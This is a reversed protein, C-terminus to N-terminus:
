SAKQEVLTNMKAVPLKKLAARAKASHQYAGRHLKNRLQDKRKDLQRELKEVVEDLCKYLSDEKASARLRYHPGIVCVDATHNVGKAYCYWQVEFNGEFYKSLHQSKQEIRFDLAPTHSINKFCLTLKM